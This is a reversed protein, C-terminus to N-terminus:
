ARDAVSTPRELARAVRRAVRAPDSELDAEAVRVVTLGHRRLARDRVADRRRAGPTAHVGAGDVEVVVAADRWHLDAEWRGAIWDNVEPPPLGHERVLDLMRLELGSRTAQWRPDYARLLGQMVAAGRRRGARTLVADIATADLIRAQEARVFARRVHEAALLDGLDVLTRAVTTAPLGDHEAVDDAVLRTRHVRLGARSRSGNGAPVTVHHPGGGSPRLGLHAAATLHSAVAGQGCALVAALRRGAPPVRAHGVAYVGAYLRHLRGQAVRHAIAGREFGLEGLQTRSVVGHQADALGALARERRLTAAGARREHVIGTRQSAM